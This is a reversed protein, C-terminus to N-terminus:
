ERASWVSRHHDAGRTDLALEGGDPRVQGDDQTAQTGGAALYRDNAQLVVVREQGEVELAGRSPLAGPCASAHDRRKVALQPLDVPAVVDGEGICCLRKVREVPPNTGVVSLLERYVDGVDAVPGVHALGGRDV